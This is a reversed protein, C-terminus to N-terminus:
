LIYYGFRSMELRPQIETKGYAARVGTLNTLKAFDHTRTNYRDHNPRDAPCYDLCM